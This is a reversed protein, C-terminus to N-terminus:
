HAAPNAAEQCQTPPERAAGKDVLTSENMYMHTLELWTSRRPAVHAVDARVKAIALGVLGGCLTAPLILLLGVLPQGFLLLVQLGIVWGVLAGVMGAFLALYLVRNHMQREWAVEERVRRLEAEAHLRLREANLARREFKAEIEARLTHLQKQLEKTVAIAADRQATLEEEMDM